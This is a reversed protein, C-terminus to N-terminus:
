EVSTTIEVPNELMKHTPCKASIDILRNREAETIPGKFSLTKKLFTRSTERNWEVSVSVRIEDLSYGKRDAYMRLTIATCSALASGLLEDPSFGLDEGGLSHPEDSILSNTDSHIITKYHEKGITATVTQM